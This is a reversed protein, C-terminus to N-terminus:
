QVYKISFDLTQGKNITDKIIIEADDYRSYVGVIQGFRSLVIVLQKQVPNQTQQSM